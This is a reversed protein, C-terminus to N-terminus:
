KSNEGSDLEISLTKNDVKPRHLYVVFPSAWDPLALFKCPSTDLMTWAVAQAVRFSPMFPQDLRIAAAVRQNLLNYVSPSVTVQRLLNEGTWGNASGMQTMLQWFADLPHVKAKRAQKALSAVKSLDLPFRMLEIYESEDYKKAAARQQLARDKASTRPEKKLFVGVKGKKGPRVELYENNNLDITGDRKVIVVANHFAPKQENEFRADNEYLVYLDEGAQQVCAHLMELDLALDVDGHYVKGQSLFCLNANFVVAHTKNRHSYGSKSGFCRGDPFCLISQNM